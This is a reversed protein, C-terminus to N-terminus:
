EFIIEKVTISPPESQTRGFCGLEYFLRSFIILTKMSFNLVHLVRLLFKINAVNHCKTKKYSKICM